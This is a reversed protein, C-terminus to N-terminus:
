NSASCPLVTSVAQIFVIQEIGRGFLKIVKADFATIQGQLKIGSNLFITVEARRAVLDSLFDEQVSMNILGKIILCKKM